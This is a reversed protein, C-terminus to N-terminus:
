LDPAAARALLPARILQWAAYASARIPSGAVAAASRDSESVFTSWLDRMVPGDHNWEGNLVGNDIWRSLIHRFLESNYLRATAIVVHALSLLDDRSAIAVRTHAPVKLTAANRRNILGGSHVACHRITCAINFLQMAMGLSSDKPWSFGLYAKSAEQLNGVSSFSTGELSTHLADEESGSLAAGLTTAVGAVHERCIPCTLTSRVILERFFEEAAAVVGAALVLASDESWAPALQGALRTVAAVSENLQDIPSRKRAM